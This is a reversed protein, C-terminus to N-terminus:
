CAAFYRGPDGFKTTELIGSSVLDTDEKWSSVMFSKSRSASERATEMEACTPAGLSLSLSAVPSM